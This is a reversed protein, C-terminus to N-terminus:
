EANITLFKYKILLDRKVEESIFIISCKYNCAVFINHSMHTEIGHDDVCSDQGDIKALNFKSNPNHVCGYSIQSTFNTYYSLLNYSTELGRSCSTTDVPLISM